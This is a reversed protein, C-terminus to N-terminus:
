FWATVGMGLFVYGQESGTLERAIELARAIGPERVGVADLGAKIAAASLGM